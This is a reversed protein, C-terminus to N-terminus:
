DFFVATEERLRKFSRYPDRLEEPTLPDYDTPHFPCGVSSM